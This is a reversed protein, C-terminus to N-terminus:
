VLPGIIALHRSFAKLRILECDYEGFLLVKALRLIVIYDVYFEM